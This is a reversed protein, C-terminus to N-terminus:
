ILIVKNNLAVGDECDLIISDAQMSPIKKIKREDNGPVYMVARRPQYKNLIAERDDVSFARTQSLSAAMKCNNCVGNFCKYINKM